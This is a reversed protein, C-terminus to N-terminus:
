CAMAEQWRVAFLGRVLKRAYDVRHVSVSAEGAALACLGAVRIANTRDDYELGHMAAIADRELPLGVGRLGKTAKATQGHDAVRVLELLSADSPYEGPNPKRAQKTAEPGEFRLACFSRPPDSRGRKEPPTFLGGCFYPTHGEFPDHLELAIAMFGDEVTFANRHSGRLALVAIKGCERIALGESYRVPLPLVAAGAIDGAQRLVNASVELTDDNGASIDVFLNLPQPRGAGTVLHGRGCISWAALATLLAAGISPVPQADMIEGALKRIPTPAGAFAQRETFTNM